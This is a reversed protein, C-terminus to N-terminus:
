FRGTHVSQAMQLTVNAGPVEIRGVDHLLERMLVTARCARAAHRERGFWLLLSDGGFKLLSGGNEYAVLLIADFSRGILETIQEAGERGKRALQESLKTVGAIDVLVATGEGTWCRGAPDEILHQQLIRAVYPIAREANVLLAPTLPERPEAAGSADAHEDLASHSRPETTM